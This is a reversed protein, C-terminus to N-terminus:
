CQNGFDPDPCRVAFAIGQSRPQVWAAESIRYDCFYSPLRINRRMLVSLIEIVLLESREEVFQLSAAVFLFQHLQEAM